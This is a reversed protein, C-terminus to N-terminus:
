NLRLMKGSVWFSDSQITDRRDAVHATRTQDLKPVLRLKESIGVAATVADVPIGPIRFYTLRELDGRRSAAALQSGASITLGSLRVYPSIDFYSPQL